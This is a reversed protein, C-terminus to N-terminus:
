GTTWLRHAAMLQITAETLEKTIGRIGVVQYFGEVWEIRFLNYKTKFKFVPVGPIGKFWRGIM